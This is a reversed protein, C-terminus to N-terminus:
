TCGTFTGRATPSFPKPGCACWSNRATRSRSPKRLNALTRISLLILKAGDLHRAFIRECAAITEDQSMTARGNVRLQKPGKHSCEPRGEADATSLFFLPRTEIFARDADTFTDHALVEVLRDALRRTDFRDQLQRSVEHYMEM